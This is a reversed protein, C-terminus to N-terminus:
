ASLPMNDMLNCTESLTVLNLDGPITQKLVSAVRTFNPSGENGMETALDYMLGASFADDAGALDVIYTLEYKM